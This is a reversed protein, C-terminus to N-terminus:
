FHLNIDPSGHCFVCPVRARVCVCVCVCVGRGGPKLFPLLPESARKPALQLTDYHGLHNCVPM